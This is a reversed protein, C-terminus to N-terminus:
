GGNVGRGVGSGGRRVRHDARCRRSHFARAGTSDGPHM